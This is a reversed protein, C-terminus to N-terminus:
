WTRWMFRVCVYGIAVEDSYLKTDNCKEEYEKYEM